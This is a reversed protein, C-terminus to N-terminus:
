QYYCPCNSLKINRYAFPCEGNPIVSNDNLMEKIRGYFSSHNGDNVDCKYLPNGIEQPMQTLHKCDKVIM